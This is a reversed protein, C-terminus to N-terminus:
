FDNTLSNTCLYNNKEGSAPYRKIVVKNVFEEVTASEFRRGEYPERGNGILLQSISNIDTTRFLHLVTNGFSNLFVPGRGSRVKAYYM